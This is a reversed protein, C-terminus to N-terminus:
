ADEFTLMSYVNSVLRTTAVDPATGDAYAYGIAVFPAFNNPYDGNGEDFTLSAPLQKFKYSWMFARAANQEIGGDGTGCIKHVRDYYVRFLDTNVPQLLNQATGSFPIQDNGALTNFMPRLLASANVAGGLVQSGVKIDKQALVLIRVYFPQTTDQLTPDLSVVGKVRLSKPTIKDGVRQTASSFGTTTDLQAIPAIIPECDGAGIGSNHSVNDEVVNGIAKNELRKDLMRKVIDM